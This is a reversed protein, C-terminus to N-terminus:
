AAYNRLVSLATQAFPGVVTLGSDDPELRQAGVRCFAGAPGVIRSPADAPGFTWNDGHPGTLIAAVPETQIDQLSCAYPITAHGLWAIHRLRDTDDFEVGLPGAIDLGHAWHEAIRTTALTAPRLPAAAWSFRQDPDATSLARISAVTATRWRTLVATPEARNQEVITAMAEDLRGDWDTWTPSAAEITTAVGEESVSLHVVVDCISWGPAGSPSAWNAASLSSLIEDLRQYEARLDDLIENLSTM